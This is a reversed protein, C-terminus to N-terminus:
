HSHTRHKCTSLFPSLSLLPPVQTSLFPAIPLPGPTAGSLNQSVSPLGGDVPSPHLPHPLVGPSNAAGADWVDRPVHVGDHLKQAQVSQLQPAWTPSM